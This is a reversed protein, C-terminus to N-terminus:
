DFLFQSEFFVLNRSNPIGPTNGVPMCNYWHWVRIQKTQSSSSPPSLSPNHTSIVSAWHLTSNTIIQFCTTVTLQFLVVYFCQLHPWGAGLVDSNSASLILDQGTGLHCVKANM